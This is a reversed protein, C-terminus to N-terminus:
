DGTPVAVHWGRFTEACRALRQYQMPQSRPGAAGATHGAPLESFARVLRPTRRLRVSARGSEDGPGEASRGVAFRCAARGGLSRTRQGSCAKAILYGQACDCGLQLLMLGHDVTEVGEAIVQRRFAEALGLVGKLMTLSEPEDLMDRVFSQDIKLVNAPLRKLYALSSYGTGFDDVSIMVGAKRYKGALVQSSLAVNQLASTELVELELDAPEIRPHAALTSRTPAFRRM